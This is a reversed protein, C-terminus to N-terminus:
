TKLVTNSDLGPQGQVHSEGMEEEWTSPNCTNHMVEPEVIYRRPLCSFIEKIQTINGQAEVSVRCVCLVGFIIILHTFSHILFSKLQTLCFLKMFIAFINRETM